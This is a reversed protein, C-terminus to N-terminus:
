MGGGPISPIIRASVSQSGCPMMGGGRAKMREGVFAFECLPWGMLLGSISASPMDSQQEGDGTSAPVVSTSEWMCAPMDRVRRAVSTSECVPWGVALSAGVSAYKGEFQAGDEDTATNGEAVMEDNNDDDGMMVMLLLLWM